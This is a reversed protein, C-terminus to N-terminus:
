ETKDKSKFYDVWWIELEKDDLEKIEDRIEERQALLDDIKKQEKKLIKELRGMLGEREVIDARLQRAVETYVVISDTLQSNQDELDSIRNEFIQKLQDVQDNTYGTDQQWGSNFLFIFAVIFGLVIILITKFDVGGAWQQLLPKNNQNNM